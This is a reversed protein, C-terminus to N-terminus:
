SPLWQHVLWSLAGITLYGIFLIGSLVLAYLFVKRLWPASRFKVRSAILVAVSAAGFAFMFEWVAWEAFESSTSPSFFASALHYLGSALLFWAVCLLPLALAMHLYHRMWLERVHLHGASRPKM